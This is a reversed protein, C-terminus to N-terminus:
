PAPLEAFRALGALTLLGRTIYGSKVGEWQGLRSKLAESCVSLIEAEGGGGVGKM